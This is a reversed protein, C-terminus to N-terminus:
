DRRGTPRASDKEDAKGRDGNREEQTKSGASKGGSQRELERDVVERSGEPPDKQSTRTEKAM